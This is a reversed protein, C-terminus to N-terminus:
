VYVRSEGTIRVPEGRDELMEVYLAIAEEINSLAEERTKGQSVCGPLSPVKVVVYDDNGPYLLM